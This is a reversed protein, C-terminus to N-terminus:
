RKQTNSEKMTKNDREFYYRDKYLDKKDLLFGKKIYMTQSCYYVVTIRGTDEVERFNKIDESVIIKRPIILINM